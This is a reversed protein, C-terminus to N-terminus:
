IRGGVVCSREPLNPSFFHVQRAQYNYLEGIGIVRGVNSCIFDLFIAPIVPLVLACLAAIAQKISRTVEDNNAYGGM